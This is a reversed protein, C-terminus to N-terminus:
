ASCPSGPASLAATGALARPHRWTAGHVASAPSLKQRGAGQFVERRWTQGLAPLEQIENRIAAPTMASRPARAPRVPCAVSRRWFQGRSSMASRPRWAEKELPAIRQVMQGEAGAGPCNKPVTCVPAPQVDHGPTKFFDRSKTKGLSGNGQSVRALRNFNYLRIFARDRGELRFGAMEPKHGPTFTSVEM